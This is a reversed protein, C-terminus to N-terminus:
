ILGARITCTPTVEGIVTVTRGMEASLKETPPVTVRYWPGSGIRVAVNVLSLRDESEAENGATVAQGCFVAAVRVKSGAGPPLGYWTTGALGVDKLKDAFETGDAVGTM